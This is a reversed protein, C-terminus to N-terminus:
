KHYSIYKELFTIRDIYLGKEEKFKEKMGGWEM